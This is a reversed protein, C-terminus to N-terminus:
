ERTSQEANKRKKQCIAIGQKVMLTMDESCSHHTLVKKYWTIAETYDQTVGSGSQHRMALAFMAMLDNQHAAKKYWLIAKEPDRKYRADGNGGEYLAGLHVQAEVYGADASQQLLEAAQEPDRKCGMGAEYMRSLIFTAKADKGKELEHLGTLAKALLEKSKDQGGEKSAYFAGLIFQGLPNGQKASSEAFSLAKKPDQALGHKAQAYWEALLAQCYSDGAEANAQVKDVSLGYLPTGGVALHPGTVVVACLTLIALHSRM